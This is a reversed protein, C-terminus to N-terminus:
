IKFKLEQKIRPFADSEVYCTLQLPLRSIDESEQAPILFVFTGIEDAGERTNNM